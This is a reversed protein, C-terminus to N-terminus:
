EKAKYWIRDPTPEAPYQPNAQFHRQLSFYKVNGGVFLVPAVTKKSLNKLDRTMVPGRPYHWSHLLYGTDDLYPLAPLCHTLVHRIPELIWSERKLALGNESDALPLRTNTWPNENYKYSTGGAEYVSKLKFGTFEAGRDAPCRFLAPSHTYNWLPRNTAAPM